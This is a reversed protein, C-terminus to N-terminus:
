REPSSGIGAVFAADNHHGATLRVSMWLVGFAVALGVADVARSSIRKDAVTSASM